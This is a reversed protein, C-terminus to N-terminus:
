KQCGCNWDIDCLIKRRFAFCICFRFIMNATQFEVSKEAHWKHLCSLKKTNWRLYFFNYFMLNVSETKVESNIHFLFTKLHISQFHHPRKILSTTISICKLNGRYRSRQRFMSLQGNPILQAKTKLRVLCVSFM